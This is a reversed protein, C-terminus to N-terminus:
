GSSQWPFGFLETDYDFRQNKESIASSYSPSVVKVISHSLSSTEEPFNSIGLACKM